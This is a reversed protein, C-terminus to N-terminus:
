LGKVEKVKFSAIDQGKSGLMKYAGSWYDYAYLFKNNRKIKVAKYTRGGDYVIETTDM